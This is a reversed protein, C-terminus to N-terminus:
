IARTSHRVVLRTAMTLHTEEVSEGRILRVLMALADHGMQRIPQEVTTLPPSTM